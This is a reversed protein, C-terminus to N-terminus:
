AGTAASFPGLTPSIGDTPNEETAETEVYYSHRWLEVPDRDPFDRLLVRFATIRFPQTQGLEAIGAIEVTSIADLALQSPLRKAFAVDCHVVLPLGEIPGGYDTM